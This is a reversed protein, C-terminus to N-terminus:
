KELFVESQKQESKEIGNCQDEVSKAGVSLMSVRICLSDCYM